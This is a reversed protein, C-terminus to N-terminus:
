YTIVVSVFVAITKFVNVLFILEINHNDVSFETLASSLQTLHFRVYTWYFITPYM